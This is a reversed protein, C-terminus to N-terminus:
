NTAGQLSWTGTVSGAANTQDATGSVSLGTSSIRVAPDDLLVGIDLATGPV